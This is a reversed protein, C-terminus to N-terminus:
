TKISYTYIYIHIYIYIYIYTYTYIYLYRFIYIYIYIYLISIYIYLIYGLHVLKGILYEINVAELCLKTQEQNSAQEDSRSKTRKGRICALIM